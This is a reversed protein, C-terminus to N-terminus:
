FGTYQKMSDKQAFGYLVIDNEAAYLVASDTVAKPTVICKINTSNAVEVLSYPVRSSICMFYQHPYRNHLFCDGVAKYFANHRSIDEGRFIVGRNDCLTVIHTGRTKKFLDSMDMTKEVASLVAKADNADYFFPFRESDMIKRFFHVYNYGAELEDLKSPLATTEYVMHGKYFVKAPIEKAVDDEAEETRGDLYVNRIKLTDIM